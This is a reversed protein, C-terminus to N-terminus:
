ASRSEGKEVVMETLVAVRALQEGLGRLLALRNARIEPDPDMVLVEVFFRELLDALRSIRQLSRGYDGAALDADLGAALEESARGLESEVGPALRDARLPVAETGRTINAIRKAALVVALFGPQERGAQLAAVRRRLDPLNAWGAALGAEIEDYAHGARARQQRLREAFVTTLSVVRGAAAGPRLDGYLAVAEPLLPQLALPIEGELLI